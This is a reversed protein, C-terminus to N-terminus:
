VLPSHGVDGEQIGLRLEPLEVVLFELGHVARYARDHEIRRRGLVQGLFGEDAGVPRAVTVGWGRGWAGPQAPDADVEGDGVQAPLLEGAEQGGAQIHGRVAAIVVPRLRSVHDLLRHGLEAGLEPRGDDEVVVVSQRALLDRVHEAHGGARHRGPDGLCHRDHSFCHPAILGALGLTKDRFRQGLVGAPFAVVVGPLLYAGLLMGIQSYGIGLDHMLLNAPSGVSQFQFGTAARAAFLVALIIWRRGPM